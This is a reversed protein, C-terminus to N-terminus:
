KKKRTKFLGEIEERIARAALANRNILVTVQMKGNAIESFNRILNPSFITKTKAYTESLLSRMEPPNFIQILSDGIAIIEPSESVEAGLITQIGISNYFKSVISDLSTEGKCAIKVEIKGSLGRVIAFDKPMLVFPNWMHQVKAVIRIKESNLPTFKGESFNELLFRIAEYGSQFNHQTTDSDLPIKQSGESYADTVDRSFRGIRNLWDLNISYDLGSKELIGEDVMQIVAKHAAQYTIDSGKEKTLRNYIKRCSLPWEKSLIGVIQSKTSKGGPLSAVGVESATQM